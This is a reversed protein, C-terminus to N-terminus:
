SLIIPAGLADDFYTEGMQWVQPPQRTSPLLKLENLDAPLDFEIRVTRAEAREVQVSTAVVWVPGDAGFADLPLDSVLEVASAAGPLYVAIRTSYAGRRLGLAEWLGAAQDGVSAPTNNTITVNMAMHRVDGDLDSELETFVEVFPDTKSATLNLSFAGIETGDLDGAVGLESWAAQQEPHRSYALIHRGKAAEAMASVLVLPDWDSQDLGSTAAKAVESLRDKRVDQVEFDLNAFQDYQGVLLYDLINNEDYIEGEVEVPGVASLIAQMVLPDLQIVGDLQRGTQAEWMVLAQPGVWEDFRASYGLKRYDNTPSLFGWRDAIDEDLVDVDRVPFLDAAPTLGPLEIRGESINMEGVSLIMGGALRMEAPNAGLLLYDSDDFMAALGVVIARLSSTTDGLDVRRQEFEVRADVLRQILNEDPGADVRALTTDLKTLDEALQDLFVARDVQGPDNRFAVINGVLVEADWAVRQGADALSTASDLQRGVFPLPQLPWLVPSGLSANAEDLSERGSTIRVAVEDLDIAGFDPSDALGAVSELASRGSQASRNASLLTAAVAALWFISTLLLWWRWRLGLPGGQGAGSPSDSVGVPETATPVLVSALGGPEGARRWWGPM